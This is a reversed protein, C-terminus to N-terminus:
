GTGDDFAPAMFNSSSPNSSSDFFNGLFLHSPWTGYGPLSLGDLDFAPMGNSGTGAETIGMSDVLEEAAPRPSPLSLLLVKDFLQAIWPSADWTDRAAHLAMKCNTLGSMGSRAVIANHSNTQMYFVVSAVFLGHFLEHPPLLGDSTIVVNCSASAIQQAADSIIEEQVLRQSFSGDLVDLEAGISGHVHALIINHNYLIRLTSVFVNTHSNIRDSWRLEEPLDNRWTTMMEQLSPPTCTNQKRPYFRVAIIHRLILSLRTAHIQYLGSHQALPSNM